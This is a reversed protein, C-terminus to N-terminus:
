HAAESELRDLASKFAQCIAAVNEPAVIGPEETSKGGVTTRLAIGETTAAALAGLYSLLAQDKELRPRETYAIARDIAAGVGGVSDVAFVGPGDRYFAHGFLVVGKGLFMAEWGATGTITAVALANDILAFTDSDDPVIELSPRGDVEAWFRPGRYHQRQKPNEKLRVTLSRERSAQALACAALAQDVWPGGMPSTTAEPQLHLPFYVFPMSRPRAGEVPGQIAAQKAAMARRRIDFRRTLLRTLMTGADSSGASRTWEVTSVGPDVTRGRQPARSMSSREKVKRALRRLLKGVKEVPTTDPAANAMYAPATRGRRQQWELQLREPLDSISLEDSPSEVSEGSEILAGARFDSVVDFTRQVQFRRMVLTPIARERCVEYAIFDAVDHPVRSFLVLTPSRDQLEQEWYAFLSAIHRATAAPSEVIDVAQHSFRYRELMYMAEAFRSDPNVVRALVEEAPYEGFFPGIGFTLSRLSAGDSVGEVPPAAAPNSCYRVVHGLPLAGILGRLVADSGAEDFGMALALRPATPQGKQANM